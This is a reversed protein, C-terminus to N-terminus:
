FIKELTFFYPSLNYIYHTKPLYKHIINEKKILGMYRSDNSNGRNDGLVFYHGKSIKIKKFNNHEDSKSINLIRFSKSPNIKEEYINMEIEKNSTKKIDNVRLIGNKMEITDGPLGVVRKIFLNEKNKLKFIIIDGLQIQNKKYYKEAYFVYENDSLTPRMSTGDIQIVGFYFSFLFHTFCCILFLKYLISKM